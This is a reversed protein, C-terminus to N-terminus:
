YQNPWKFFKKKSILKSPKIKPENNNINIINQQNQQFMQEYINLIYKSKDNINNVPNINDVNKLININKIGNLSMFAEYNRNKDEYKIVMEYYIKYIMEINEKVKNFRDIISNIDNNFVDIIKRFEKLANLLEDKDPFIERFQVIDHQLHNKQCKVCINKKCSKCYSIYLENHEECTSYKFDYNISSHYKDHTSECLPCLIIKCKNCVYMKNEYTNLKKQM